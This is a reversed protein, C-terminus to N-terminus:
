DRKPEDRVASEYVTFGVTRTMEKGSKDLLDHVTIDLEYEGPRIGKISIDTRMYLHSPPVKNMADFEFMKEKKWIADKTGKKRIRGDESLLAHFGDKTKEVRYGTPESYIMIKDDATFRAEPIVEFNGYGHIKRCIVPKSMQFQPKDDDSPEAVAASVILGLGIIAIWYVDRSRTM